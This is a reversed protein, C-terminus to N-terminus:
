RRLKIEEVIFRDGLKRGAVHLDYQRNEHLYELEPPCASLPLSLPESLLRIAVDVASEGNVPDGVGIEHSYNALIFNALRDIEPHGQSSNDDLNTAEDIKEELEVM